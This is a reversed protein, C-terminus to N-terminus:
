NGNTRRELMGMFGNPFFLVVALAILSVVLTALEGLPRLVEGMGILFV